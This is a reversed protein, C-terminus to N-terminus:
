PHCYCSHGAEWLKCPRYGAHIFTEKEVRDYMERIAAPTWAVSKDSMLRATLGDSLDITVNGRGAFVWIAQVMVGADPEPKATKDSMCFRGPSELYDVSAPLLDYTLRLPGGSVLAPASRYPFSPVALCATGTSSACLQLYRDIPAARADRDGARAVIKPSLFSGAIAFPTDLDVTLRRGIPEKIGPWYIPSSQYGTIAVNRAFLQGRAAYFITMLAIMGYLALPISSFVLGLAYIGGVRRQEGRHVWRWSLLLALFVAIVGFLYPWARTPWGEKLFPLLAYLAAASFIAIVFLLTLKIVLRPM